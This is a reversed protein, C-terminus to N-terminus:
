KQHAKNGTGVRCSHLSILISIQYQDLIGRRMYGESEQRQRKVEGPNHHKCSQTGNM